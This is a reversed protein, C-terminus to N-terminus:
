AHKCALPSEGGKFGQPSDAAQAGTFAPPIKALSGVLGDASPNELRKKNRRWVIRYIFCCLHTQFDKGERGGQPGITGTPCINASYVKEFAMLSKIEESAKQISFKGDAEASDQLCATM